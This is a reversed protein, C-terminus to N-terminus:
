WFIDQWFAAYVSNLQSGAIRSNFESKIYEKNADEIFNYTDDM